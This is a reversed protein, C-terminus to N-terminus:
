KSGKVFKEAAKYAEDFTDWKEVAGLFVDRSGVKAYYHTGNPWKTVKIEEGPFIWDDITKTEKVIIDPHPFFYGFSKNIFITGEEKLCRRMGFEVDTRIKILADIASIGLNSVMSIILWGERAHGGNTKAGTLKGYEYSNTADAFDSSFRPERMAFWWDDFEEETSIMMLWGYDMEPKRCVVHALTPM